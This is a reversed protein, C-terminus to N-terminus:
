QNLGLTELIQDWDSFGTVTETNLLKTELRTTRALLGRDAPRVYPELLSTPVTHPEIAEARRDLSATDAPVTRFGTAQWARVDGCLDPLALTSLEYLDTAYSHALHTLRPNNSWRLRKVTDAFTRIPGADIGYSTSWLAVAVEYSMPASAANEPSGAGVRPCEQGLRGNLTEVAAQAPAVRAETARALAYNARIYAHTSALDQSTANARATAPAMGLILATAIITARALM